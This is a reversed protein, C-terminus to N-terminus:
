EDQLSGRLVRVTDDMPLAFLDAGDPTWRASWVGASFPVRLLVAGSEAHWVELTNNALGACLRSGDPSFALSYVAAAAVPLPELASGSADWRRVDRGSASVLVKGDPQFALAV